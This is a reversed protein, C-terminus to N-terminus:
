KTGAQQAAGGLMYEKGHINKFGAQGMMAMVEEPSPFYKNSSSLYQYSNYENRHFLVQGLWPMLKEYYIHYLAKNFGKPKGLDLNIFMGGKKLVRYVETLGLAMDDLNRLGFSMIVADFRKGEFPLQLADAISFYINELGLRAKKIKALELMGKSVDVADITVTKFRSAIFLAMDGTGTCLDLVRQGAKLNLDRVAARKYFSQQGLSIIENLFDYKPALQDFFLRNSEKWSNAHFYKDFGVARVMKIGKTKKEKTHGACNHPM